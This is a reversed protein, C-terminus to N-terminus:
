LHDPSQLESTHEESRPLVEIVSVPNVDRLPTPIENRPIIPGVWGAPHNRLDRQLLDLKSKPITGVIRTQPRKTYGRHDYGVPELDSSRRTPFATCPLP